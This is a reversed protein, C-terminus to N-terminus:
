RKRGQRAAHELKAVALITPKLEAPAQDYGRGYRGNLRPALGYPIAEWNSPDTNAKDSDLCKLRMGDPVPGHLAEWRILHVARWRSQLPLDDNIKRELYGDQSLRETGIPKYLRSAAGRREGPKFWTAAVAANYPMQKGKNPPVGGPEFCGTRGTPWGRRQRLQKLAGPSVDRGFRACFLTHLEAQPLTRNAEVWALEDPSYPIPRGKM